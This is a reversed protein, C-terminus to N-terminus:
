LSDPNRCVDAAAGLLQTYVAALRRRYERYNYTTRHLERGAAGLRERLAADGALAVIGAAFIAVYVIPQWSWGDGDGDGYLSSTPM